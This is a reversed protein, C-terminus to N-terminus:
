KEVLRVLLVNQIIASFDAQEIRDREPEWGFLTHADKPSERVLQEVTRQIEAPDELVEARVPMRRLGIQISVDDPHAILNKYWSAGKGWASFIYPVGGIRFYGIPVLRTKGSSRGRTALLMVTRAAGFLPLLGIRYFAVIFPNYTKLRAHFTRRFEADSLLRALNSGPTPFARLVPQVSM